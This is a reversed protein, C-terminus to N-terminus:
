IERQFVTKWRKSGYVNEHVALKLMDEAKERTEKSAAKQSINKMSKYRKNEEISIQCMAKHVDKKRSM